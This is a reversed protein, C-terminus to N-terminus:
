LQSKEALASPNPITHHRVQVAVRLLLLGCFVFIHASISLKCVIHASKVGGVVLPAGVAAVTVLGIAVLVGVTELDTCVSTKRLAESIVLTIQMYHFICSVCSSNFWSNKM